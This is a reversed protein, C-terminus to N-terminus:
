IVEVQERKMEVPITFGDMLVALRRDTSWKCIGEYKNWAGGHVRVNMGTLDPPRFVATIEPVKLLDEVVDHPVPTPTEPTAGFLREVGRTSCIPRWRDVDPDFFVFLYRPFLPLRRGLHGASDVVVNDRQARKGRTPEVVHEPLFATFWDKRSPDGSRSQSM